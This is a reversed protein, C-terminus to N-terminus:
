KSQTTARYLSLTKILEYVGLKLVTHYMASVDRGSYTNKQLELIVSEMGPRLTGLEFLEEKVMRVALQFGIYSEVDFIGFDAFGKSVGPYLDRYEDFYIKEIAKSTEPSLSNPLSLNSTKTM